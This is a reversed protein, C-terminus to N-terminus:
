SIIALDSTLSWLSASTVVELTFQLYQKYCLIDAGEGPEEKCISTSRKFTSTSTAMVFINIFLIDIM